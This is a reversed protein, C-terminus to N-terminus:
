LARRKVDWQAFAIYPIRVCEICDIMMIKKPLDNFETDAERLRDGEDLAAALTDLAEYDEPRLLVARSLLAEINKLAEKANM